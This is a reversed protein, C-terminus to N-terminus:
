GAYISGRQQIDALIFRREENLRAYSSFIFDEFIEVQNFEALLTRKGKFVIQAQLDTPVSRLDVLDIQTQFLIGTSQATESLKLCSIKEPGLVAVDLDSEPLAKNSAQSGYVYISWIDPLQTHITQAIQTIRSPDM